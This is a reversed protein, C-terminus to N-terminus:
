ITALSAFFQNYITKNGAAEYKNHLADFTMNVNFQQMVKSATIQFMIDNKGKLLRGGNVIMAVGAGVGLICIIIGIVLSLIGSSGMTKYTKEEM